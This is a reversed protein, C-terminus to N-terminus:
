DVPCYCFWASYSSVSRKSRVQMAMLYM